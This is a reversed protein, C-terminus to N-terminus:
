YLFRTNTNKRAVYKQKQRSYEITYKKLKRVVNCLDINNVKRLGLQLYQKPARHSYNSIYLAVLEAFDNRIEEDHQLFEVDVQDKWPINSEQISSWAEGIASIVIPKIRVIGTNEPAEAWGRRHRYPPEPIDTLQAKGERLRRLRNRTIKYEGRLESIDVEMREITSKSNEIYFYAINNYLRNEDLEDFKKTLNLMEINESETRDSLPKNKIKEKKRKDSEYKKLGSKYTNDYESTFYSSISAEPSLPFNKQIKDYIEKVKDYTIEGVDYNKPIYSNGVINYLEFISNKPEFINFNIFVTILDIFRKSFEKKIDDTIKRDYLMINTNISIQDMNLATFFDDYEIIFTPKVDIKLESLLITYILSNFEAAGSLVFSSPIVISGKIASSSNIDNAIGKLIEFSGISKGKGSLTFIKMIHTFIEFRKRNYIYNKGKEIEEFRQKPIIIKNLDEKRMDLKTGIDVVEMRINKVQDELILTNTRLEEISLQQQLQISRERRIRTSMDSEEYLNEVISNTKGALSTLFIYNPDNEVISRRLEQEKIWSQEYYGGEGTPTEWKRGDERQPRLSPHDKEYEEWEKIKFSSEGRKIGIFNNNNYDLDIDSGGSTNDDDSNILIIPSDVKEKKNFSEVNKYKRKISEINKSKRKIPIRELDENSFKEIEMKKKYYLTM